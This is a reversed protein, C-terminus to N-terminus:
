IELTLSLIKQEQNYVHFNVTKSNEENDKEYVRLSMDHIGQTVTIYGPNCRTHTTESSQQM